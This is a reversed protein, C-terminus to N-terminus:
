VAKKSQCKSLITEKTIKGNYHEDKCYNLDRAKNNMAKGEEKEEQEMTGM